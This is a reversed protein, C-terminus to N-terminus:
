LKEMFQPAQTLANGTKPGPWVVHRLGWCECIFYPLGLMLSGCNM